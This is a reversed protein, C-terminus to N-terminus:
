ITIYKVSCVKATKTAIQAGQVCLSRHRRLNYRMETHSHIGSPSHYDCLASSINYLTMVIVLLHAMKIAMVNSSVRQRLSYRSSSPQLELGQDKNM